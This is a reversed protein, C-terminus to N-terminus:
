ATTTVSPKLRSRSVKGSATQPLTALFEIRSPVMYGELRERCHRRVSAATLTDDGDTVVYAVIAQGLAEDRAGVVAAEKVGRLEHLVREIELPSVKEGGTKIIDDTRSVFYLFGQDDMRFLDGTRLVKEGPVPGDVLVEATKDPRRWYGAMVHPGRVHLIGVEGPQCPVGDDNLLLVETGPIAKGVSTPRDNLLEPELYAVRKCETLGYMSYVLANPFVEKIEAIQSPALAAATNTVRTVSDFRLGSSRAVSLIGAFSTPVGPFVTPRTRLIVDAIQAPFAMSRELLVTAGLRITMLVQYLGYDFSLPLVCLITEDRSLRLYTCISETAFVMNGHTLM